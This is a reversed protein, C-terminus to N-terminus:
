KILGKKMYLKQKKIDNAKIRNKSEVEINLIGECRTKPPHSLPFHLHTIIIKIFVHKNSM